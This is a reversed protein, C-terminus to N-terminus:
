SREPFWFSVNGCREQFRFKNAPIQNQVWCGEFYINHEFYDLNTVIHPHTFSSLIKM